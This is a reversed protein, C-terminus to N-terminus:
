VDPTGSISGEIVGDAILRELVRKHLSKVTLNATNLVKLMSEAEAGYYQHGFVAGPAGATTPPAEVTVGVLSEAGLYRFLLEKVKCNTIPTTLDVQEAM